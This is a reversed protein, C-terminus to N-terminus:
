LKVNIVTGKALTKVLKEEAYKKTLKDTFIPARWIKGIVLRRLNGSLVNLKAPLAMPPEIKGDGDSKAAVPCLGGSLAKLRDAMANLARKVEASYDAHRMHFQKHGSATIAAAVYAMRFSETEGSIEQGMREKIVVLGDDSPWMNTNSLAYPSPLWVGNEGQNVDYGVSLGKKIHSSKGFNKIANEDGLFPLLKSIKLSENGPILHHPAYQLPYIDARSKQEYVSVEKAKGALFFELPKGVTKFKVKVTGSPRPGINNGLKSGINAPMVNSDENPLQEDMVVSQGKPKPSHWPCTKESHEEGVICLEIKIAEGLEM